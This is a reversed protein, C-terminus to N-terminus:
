EGPAPPQLEVVEIRRNKQRNEETDNPAVPREDGHGVATIRTGDIGRSVLYGRCAQARRASLTKNAKRNGVNDTHGSIEVKASKKHALFEYVVDLRPQSESRIVAKGTDFTIGTLVFPPPPPLRKFRLTLKINQAPESSVTVSAAIDKRGLSLYTIEYKQGVPVLVEGYGEADTEDTYYSTGAPSTLCVVAGKVPGKDKELVFFKMAAETKTAVIKSAKVGRASKAGGDAGRLQFENADPNAAAVVMVAVAITVLQHMSRGGDSFSRARVTDSRAASRVTTESLMRRGHALTAELREAVTDDGDQDGSATTWSAM